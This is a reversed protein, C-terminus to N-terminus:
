SSQFVYRFFERASGWLSNRSSLSIGEIHESQIEEIIKQVVQLAEAANDYSGGSPTRSHRPNQPHSVPSSSRRRVASSSPRPSRSRERSPARRRERSSARSPLAKSATPVSHM